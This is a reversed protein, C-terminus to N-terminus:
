GRRGRGGRPRREVRLDGVDAGAGREGDADAEAVALLEGVAPVGRRDLHGVGLAAAAGLEQARLLPDGLHEAAAGRHGGALQEHDAGAGVEVGAARALRRQLDADASSASSASRSASAAGSWSSSKAASSSRRAIVPSAALSASPPSSASSRAASTVSVSRIESRTSRRLRASPQTRAVAACRRAAKHGMSPRLSAPAAAVLAALVAELEDVVDGDLKM